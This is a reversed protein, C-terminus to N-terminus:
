QRGFSAGLFRSVMGLTVFQPNGLRTVSAGELTEM